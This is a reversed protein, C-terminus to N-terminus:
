QNSHLFLSDTSYQLRSVAQVKVMLSDELCCRQQLYTKWNLHKLGSSQLFCEVQSPLLRPLCNCSVWQENLGFFMLFTVSKVHQNKTRKPTSTMQEPAKRASGSSKEAPGDFRFGIEVENTDNTLSSSRRGWGSRQHSTSVDGWCLWLRLVHAM